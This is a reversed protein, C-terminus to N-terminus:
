KMRERILESLRLLALPGGYDMRKLRKGEINRTDLSIVGEIKLNVNQAEPQGFRWIPNFPDHAFANRLQRVILAATRLENDSNKFRNPLYKMLFRDLQIAIIYTTSHELTASAIKEDEPTLFLDKYEFVHNGSSFKEFYNVFNEKSSNCEMRIAIVFKFQKETREIVELYIEKETRDM